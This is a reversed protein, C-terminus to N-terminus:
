STEGVRPTSGNLPGFDRRYQLTNGPRYRRKLSPDSPTQEYQIMDQWDNPLASAPCDERIGTIYIATMTARGAQWGVYSRHMGDLIYRGDRTTEEVIPPILGIPTGDDRSVQLGGRLALPDYGQEALDTALKRQQELNRTIVYLSTPRLSAYDLETLTIQAHEYPYVVEGDRLEHLRVHRVQQELTQWDIAGVVEYM